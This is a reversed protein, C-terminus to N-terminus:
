GTGFLTEMLMKGLCIQKEKMINTINVADLDAKYDDVTKQSYNRELQLFKLFNEINLM